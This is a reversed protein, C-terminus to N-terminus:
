YLIWMLIQHLLVIIINGQPLAISNTQASNSGVVNAGVQSYINFTSILLLFSVITFYSIKKIDM